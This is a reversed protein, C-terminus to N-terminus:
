LPILVVVIVGRQNPLPLCQCAGSRDRPVLLAHARLKQVDRVPECVSLRERRFADGFNHPRALPFFRLGGPLRRCAASSASLRPCGRGIHLGTIASEDVNFEGHLRQLEDVAAARGGNPLLVREERGVSQVIDAHQCGCLSFCQRFRILVQPANLVCQPNHMVPRQIGQRRITGFQLLQRPPKPIRM